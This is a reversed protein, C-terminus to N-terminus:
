GSLKKKGIAFSLVEERTTKSTALDTVIRGERLIYIRHTMNMLEDLDSSVMLIAKQEDILSKMIRHIEERAGVDVGQTPEDMIFVEIGRCLWKAVMVKQRNGGSLYKVEQRVSQAQISLTKMFTSSLDNEHSLNLFPGRSIRPLSAITTNGAVSMSSILGVADRNEPIFCIGLRIMEELPLHQTERGEFLLRGQEVRSIGAMAQVVETRGSGVMGAIGVIEGRHLDISIGSFEGPRSIDRAAYVAEGVERDEIHTISLEQGVMAQVLMDKDIERVTKEFVRSGDRLVTVRDAIAFIEDLRHSIYIISVGRKQLQGIISFLNEIEAGTLSATPEDMIVIQANKYLAKAIEVAQQEASSLSAVTHQPNLDLHLNNLIDQAQEHLKKWRIVGWRTRPENGLLINEGVSLHPVLNREQYITVIGADQAKRPTLEGVITDNLLIDGSDREYAGSLIKILTSKGAGNEGVIAHVESKRLTIDVEKLVTVGSFSKVIGSAELIKENIHNDKSM